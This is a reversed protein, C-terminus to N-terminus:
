LYIFTCVFNEDVPTVFRTGNLNLAAHMYLKNHIQYTLQKGCSSSNVIPPSIVKDLPPARRQIPSSGPRNAEMQLSTRPSSREFSSSEKRQRNPDAPPSLRHVPSTVKRPLNPSPKRPIPPSPKRYMPPSVKEPRSPSEDGGNEVPPSIKRQLRPSIKRQLSPSAKRRLIPSMKAQGVSEVIPPIHRWPLVKNVPTMAKRDLSSQGSTLVQHAMKSDVNSECSTVSQSYDSCADTRSPTGYTAHGPTECNDVEPARTVEQRSHDTAARSGNDQPVLPPSTRTLLPPPTPRRRTGALITPDPRPPIPPPLRRVHHLGHPPQPLVM